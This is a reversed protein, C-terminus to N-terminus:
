MAGNLPDYKDGKSSFVAKSKASSPKSGRSAVSHAVSVSQTKRGLRASNNAAMKPENSPPPSADVTASPTTREDSDHPAAVTPQTSRQVVSTATVANTAATTVGRGRAAEVIWPTRVPQLPGGATTVLQEVTRPTGFSPGGVLEHEFQTYRAQQHLAQAASLLADNRQLTVFLGAAIALRLLWRGGSKEPAPAALSLAVPPASLVPVARAAPPAAAISVVSAARAPATAVPAIGAVTALPLWQSMGSKWLLTQENIVDYRYYDDLQELTVSKVQGPAIQVYWTDEPEDSLEEGVLDSLKTWQSMGSQWVPTNGDIVGVRYFDDLQELTVTRVDGPAMCVHWREQHAAPEDSGLFASLQVWQQTGPQILYTQENIVGLRYFDRVQESSLLKVDGPSVQVYWSPESRVAFGSVDDDVEDVLEIEDIEDLGFRGAKAYRGLLPSSSVGYFISNLELDSLPFQSNQLITLRAWGVSNGKRAHSQSGKWLWKKSHHRSPRGTTLQVNKKRQASYRRNHCTGHSVNTQTALRGRFIRWESSEM